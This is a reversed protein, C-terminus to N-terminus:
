HRKLDAGDSIRLACFVVILPLMMIHPSLFQLAQIYVFLTIIPLLYIRENGDKYRAKNCRYLGFLFIMFLLFGVIGGAVFIQQFGNHPVHFFGAKVHMEQIGIGFILRDLKALMFEQYQNWIEARGNTLDAEQFRKIIFQFTTPFFTQIVIFISMISAALSTSALISNKSIRLNMLFYYAIVGVSIVIFTRSLTLSGYIFAIVICVVAWPPSLKKSFLLVLFLSLAIACFYGLTNQDLTLTIDTVDFQANVTAINGLRIGNKILLSLPMYKLTNLLIITFAAIVGMGFSLLVLTPRENKEKKLLVLAILIIYLSFKVFGGISSQYLFLHFLQLLLFAYAAFMYGNLVIKGQKLILFFIAAAVIYNGPLGPLFPILFAFYAILFSESLYIFAVVVIMLLVYKHIPVDFYDRLLVTLFILAAFFVFYKNENGFVNSWRKQQFAKERNVTMVNDMNRTYSGTSRHWLRWMM